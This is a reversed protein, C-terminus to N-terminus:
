TLVVVLWRAVGPLSCLWVGVKVSEGVADGVSAGVDVAVGM